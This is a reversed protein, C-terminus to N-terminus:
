QRCWGAGNWVLTGGLGDPAYWRGDDGMLAASQSPTTSDAGREAYRPSATSVYRYCNKQGDSRTSKWEIRYGPFEALPYWPAAEYWGPGCPTSYGPPVPPGRYPPPPPPPALTAIVCRYCSNDGPLSIRRRRQFFDGSKVPPCQEERGDSFDFRYGPPCRGGGGGRSAPLHDEQSVGLPVWGMGNDVWQQGCGDTYNRM